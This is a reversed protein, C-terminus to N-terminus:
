SNPLTHTISDAGSGKLQLEELQTASMRQDVVVVGEMSLLTTIATTIATFTATVARFRVRDQNHRGKVALSM